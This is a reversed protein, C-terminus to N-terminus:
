NQPFQGLFKELHKMVEERTVGTMCHPVEFRCSDFCPKHPCDKGEVVRGLSHAPRFWETLQPGFITFTPKNLAAALHGPGSDNGIFADGESLRQILESVTTPVSPKRGQSEWFSWQNTDCILGVDLGLHELYKVMAAYGELSWVRVPQAAGTHIVVRKLPPMKTPTPDGEKWDPINLDLAQGLTQWQDYRHCLQGPIQLPQTLLLNSKSRPFGIRKGAGTLWMWGHDRPDWRGSAAIDFKERRLRNLTALVMKWPWQHFRYKGTFATWPAIFDIVKVQPWLKQQLDHAYPKALLTVEYKESAKELFRSAIALDGLGWLELILLKPKSSM